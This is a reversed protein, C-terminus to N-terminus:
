ALLNHREVHAPRGGLDAEDVVRLRLGRTREFDGPNVAKKLPAPQRQANWHDFHDLDASAAARNRANIREAADDDTGVAGARLRTRHAVGAAPFFGGPGIRISTEPADMRHRTRA